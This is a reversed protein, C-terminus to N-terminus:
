APKETISKFVRTYFNSAQTRSFTIEETLYEPLVDILAEDRSQNLQPRYTYQVNEYSNVEDLPDM